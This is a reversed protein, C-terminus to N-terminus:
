QYQMTFRLRIAKSYTTSRFTHGKIKLRKVTIENAEVHESYIMIALSEYIFLFLPTASYPGKLPTKSPQLANPVITFFFILLAGKSAAEAAIGGGKRTGYGTGM